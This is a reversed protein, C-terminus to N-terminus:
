QSKNLKKGGMNWYIVKNDKGCSIIKDEFAMLDNVPGNHGKLHRLCSMSYLDWEM